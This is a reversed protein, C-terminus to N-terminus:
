QYRQKKAAVVKLTNDHEEGEVLDCLRIFNNEGFQVHIRWGSIKTVDARYISKKIGEIKHLRTQPYQRNKHATNDELEKISKLFEYRLDEPLNDCADKFVGYEDM